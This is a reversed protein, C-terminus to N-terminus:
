GSLGLPLLDDDDDEIPAPKNGVFPINMAPRPQPVAELMRLEHADEAVLANTLSKVTALLSRIVGALVVIVLGALAAVVVADTM